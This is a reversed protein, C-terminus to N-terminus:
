NRYLYYREGSVIGPEFRAVPQLDPPVGKLPYSTLLLVRGPPRGIEAEVAALVAQETLPRLRRTNWVILRRTQRSRPFFVRPRDLRALVPLTIQDRDAVIVRDALRNDRIWAAAAQSASFPRALDMASAYWGVALQIALVAFIGANSLRAEWPRPVAAEGSRSRGWALLWSAALFALFVHGHHRQAGPHKLYSFLVVGGAGLAWCILATASARFRWTVLAAIVAGCLGALVPFPDLVNTNWFHLGPVPVPVFARWITGVAGQLRLWDFHVRWGVAFGSDAPPRLWLCAAAVSAAVIAASLAARRRDGRGVRGALADRRLDVGVAAALAVGLIVGYVTTQALLALCLAAPVVHPRSATLFALASVLCLVGLAYHRSLITYEFFVTYGYVFLLAQWAPLPACRLVVWVALTAFAVNLCQMALPDPVVRALAYVSIPWLLGHGGYKLAGVLDALSTSDLAFAWINMEDRWMEHRLVRAVSLAAFLATWALPSATTGERRM